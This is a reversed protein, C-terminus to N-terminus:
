RLFYIYNAEALLRALVGLLFTYYGYLKIGISDGGRSVEGGKFVEVRKSIELM